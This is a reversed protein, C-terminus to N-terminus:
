RPNRRGSRTNKSEEGSRRDSGRFQDEQRRLLRQCRRRGLGRLPSQSAAPSRKIRRQIVHNHYNTKLSNPTTTATASSRSTKLVTIGNKAPIHKSMGGTFLM